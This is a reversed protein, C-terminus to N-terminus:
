RSFLSSFVIHVITWFPFGYLGFLFNEMAFSHFSLDSWNYLVVLLIAFFAHIGVALASLKFINSRFYLSLRVWFSDAPLLSNEFRHTKLYTYILWVIFHFYALIYLAGYFSLLRSLALSGGWVGAGILLSLSFVYSLPLKLGSFYVFWMIFMALFLVPKLAAPLSFVAGFVVIKSFLYPSLLGLFSLGSAAAFTTNYRFRSFNSSWQHWFFAFDRTGHFPFTFTLLLVPWAGSQDPFFYLLLIFVLAGLFALVRTKFFSYQRHTRKLASLRFWYGLVYHPLGLLTAGLIVGPFGWYSNVVAYLLIALVLPLAVFYFVYSVVFPRSNM